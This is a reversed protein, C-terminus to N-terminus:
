FQLPYLCLSSEIVSLFIVMHALAVTFWINTLPCHNQGSDAMKQLFVVHLKFSSLYLKFIDFPYDSAMFQHIFLVISFV